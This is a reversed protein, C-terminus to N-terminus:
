NQLRILIKSLLAIIVFYYDFIHHTRRIFSCYDVEIRAQKIVVIHLFSLVLSRWRLLILTRLRRILSEAFPLRLTSFTASLDRDLLFTHLLELSSM